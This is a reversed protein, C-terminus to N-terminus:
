RQDRWTFKGLFKASASPSDLTASLNMTGSPIVVLMEEDDGLQDIPMAINKNQIAGSSQSVDASLRTGDFTVHIDNHWQPFSAGDVTPNCSIAKPSVTFKSGRILNDREIQMTLLGLEVTKSEGKRLEIPKDVDPLEIVAIKKLNPAMFEAICRSNRYHFTRAPRLATDPQALEAQESRFVEDGLPVILIVNAVASWHMEHVEMYQEESIASANYTTKRDRVRRLHERNEQDLELVRGVLAALRGDRLRTRWLTEGPPSFEVPLPLELPAGRPGIILNAFLAYGDPIAIMLAGKNKLSERHRYPMRADDSRLFRLEFACSWPGSGLQMLPTLDQKQKKALRVHIQGTAHVSIKLGLMRSLAYVEDGVAWIKWISSVPEGELSPAFRILKGEVLAIM